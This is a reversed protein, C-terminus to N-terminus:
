LLPEVAARGEPTLDYYRRRAGSDRQEAPNLRDEWTSTVWGAEELRALLPYVTGTRMSTAQAIALGYTRGGALVLLIARTPM